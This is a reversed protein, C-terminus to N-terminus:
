QSKRGHRAPKVTKSETTPSTKDGPPPNNKSFRLEPFFKFTVEDMRKNTLNNVARFLEGMHEKKPDPTVAEKLVKAVIDESKKALETAKEISDVKQTSINMYANLYPM